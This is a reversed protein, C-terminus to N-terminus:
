LKEEWTVKREKLLNMWHHYFPENTYLFFQCLINCFFLHTTAFRSTLFDNCYYFFLLLKFSTFSSIDEVCVVRYTCKSYIDRIYVSKRPIHIWHSKPLSLFAFTRHDEWVKKKQFEYLSNWNINCAHMHVLLIIFFIISIRKSIFRDTRMDTQAMQPTVMQPTPAQIYSNM